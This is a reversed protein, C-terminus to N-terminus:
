SGFERERGTLRDEGVYMDQMVCYIEGDEEGCGGGCLGHM